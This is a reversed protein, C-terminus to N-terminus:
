QGCFITVCSDMALNSDLDCLHFVYAGGSYWWCSITTERQQHYRLQYETFVMLVAKVDIVKMVMVVTVSSHAVMSSTVRTIVVM